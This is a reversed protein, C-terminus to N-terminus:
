SQLHAVIDAAITAPSGGPAPVRVAFEARAHAECCEAARRRVWAWRRDGIPEGRRALRDRVGDLPATLCYHVVREGGAAMGARVEDLYDLESFAMPVIVISRLRGM